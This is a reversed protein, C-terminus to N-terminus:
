TCTYLCIWVKSTVDSTKIFLPGAFDVGVVSFPQGRNVRFVPLPSPPPLQNLPGELKCCIFCRQSIKQIVLQEKIIWFRSRFQTLTEKVGIYKVREHYDIVILRCVPHGSQLLIPFSSDHPLDANELRGRCGILGNDDFVSWVTVEM